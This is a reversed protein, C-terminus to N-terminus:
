FTQMKVHFSLNACKHLFLLMKPFLFIISFHLILHEDM